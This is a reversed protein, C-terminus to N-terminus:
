DSLTDECLMYFEKGYLGKDIRLVTQDRTVIYAHQIPLVSTDVREVISKVAEYLKPTMSERVVGAADTWNLNMDETDWPLVTVNYTEALVVGHEKLTDRDVYEPLTDLYEELLGNVLVTFGGNIIVNKGKTVLTNYLAEGQEQGYKSTFAGRLDPWDTIFNEIQLTINMGVKMLRNVNQTIRDNIFLWLDAPIEGYLKYLQNRYMDVDDFTGLIAIKERLAKMGTQYFPTLKNYRYEHPLNDLLHVEINEKSLFLEKLAAAHQHTYTNFIQPILLPRGVESLGDVEKIGVSEGDPEGIRAVEEWAPVVKERDTKPLTQKFKTNLEHNEYGMAMAEEKTKLVEFVNGEEDKYHFLVHTTPDYVVSYPQKINFTKKWPSDKALVLTSEVKEEVTKVDEEWLSGRRTSVNEYQMPAETRITEKRGGWRAKFTDREREANSRFDQYGSESDFSEKVAPHPQKPKLSGGGRPANMGRNQNGWVNGPSQDHFMGGSANMPASHPRHGSYMASPHHAGMTPRNWQNGGWQNAMNVPQGYYQNPPMGMPPMQQVWMQQPQVWPQQPVPQGGFRNQTGWQPQGQWGMGMQQQRMQKFNRIEQEIQKFKNTWGQVEQMRDAPMNASLQPFKMAYICSLITAVEEAATNCAQEMPMGKGLSLMEAYDIVSEVAQLIDDNRYNDRSLYNFAFTRLPNRQANSQLANLFFGISPQVLHQVQPDVTLPLNFPINYPLNPIFMQQNPETCSVPLGGFQNYM